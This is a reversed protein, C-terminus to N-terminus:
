VLSIQKNAKVLYHAEYVPMLLAKFSIRNKNIFGLTKSISPGFGGAGVEELWKFSATDDLSADTFLEGGTRRGTWCGFTRSGLAASNSPWWWTGRTALGWNCMVCMGSLSIGNYMCWWICGVMLVTGLRISFAFVLSSSRRWCCSINSIIFIWWLNNYVIIAM